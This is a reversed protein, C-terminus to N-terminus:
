GQAEQQGCTEHALKFAKLANRNNGRLNLDMSAGCPCHLVPKFGLQQTVNFHSVIQEQEGSLAINRYVDTRTDIM